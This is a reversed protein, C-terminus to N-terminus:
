VVSTKGSANKGIIGMTSYTYLNEDIENLEIEKDELTKNAVPVFSITFNDECLKFNNTVVRLLKM